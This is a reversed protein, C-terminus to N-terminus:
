SINQQELARRIKYLAQEQIQRIRERSLKYNEGIEKLTLERDGSLGFRKRLVDAEIPKLQGIMELVRHNVSEQIIRDTPTACEPDHLMEVFRRDDELSVARDLSLSPDSLYGQLKDVKEASIGTAASLEDTTPARGIRTSLERTAQTIKHHADLMHVPLRVARGKDALARSIAHRIWWSAYTSFRYGRRYDYREVAKILGINGEQILDALAMRGYNFRKAISVVLRLNANVFENRCQQARSFLVVMQRYHDRFAQSGVQVNVRQRYIHNQERRAVRRIEGLLALLLRRDMDLAYIARATRECQALYDQRSQATNKKRLAQAARRQQQFESVSNDIGREVHALIPELLGCHSLLHAWLRVEISEINRATEFEEEPKLMSLNAMEKFYLALFNEASEETDSSKVEEEEFTVQPDHTDSMHDRTRRGRRPNVHPRSQIARRAM